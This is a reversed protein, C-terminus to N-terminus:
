LGDSSARHIGNFIWVPIHGSIQEPTWGSFEALIGWFIRVNISGTIRAPIVKWFGAPTWASIGYLNEVSIGEHRRRLRRPSFDWTTLM